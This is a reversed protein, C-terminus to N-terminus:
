IRQGRDTRAHRESALHLHSSDPGKRRPESAMRSCESGYIYSNINQARPWLLDNRRERARRSSNSGSSSSDNGHTFPLNLDSGSYCQIDVWQVHAQFAHGQAVYTPDNWDIM